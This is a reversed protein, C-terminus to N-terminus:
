SERWRQEFENQELVRAAMDRALQDDGSLSARLTVLGPAGLRLLALGAARRVSFDNDALAAGLRGASTWDGTEGLADAAARRVAPEPDDLLSTLTTVVGESGAAGLIGAARERVRADSSWTLEGAAPAFAPSGLASAVELTALLATARTAVEDAASAAAAGLRAALPAEARTGIRTLADQAAFVCRPDRDDLLAAVRDAPGPEPLSASWEAAQARVLPHPDDLLDDVVRADSRLATLVRAGRLRRWWRRDHVLALARPTVGIREAAEAVADHTEGAVGRAIQVVLDDAEQPRLLRAPALVDADADLADPDAAVMALARSAADVIRSRRRTRIAAVVSRAVLYLVIALCVTVLVASSVLVVNRLV